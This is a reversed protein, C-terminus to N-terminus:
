NLGTFEFKYVCCINDDDLGVWVCSNKHDVCVSENNHINPVPYQALLHTLEADFVYLKHTESDSVWLWDNVPDYCLGGVEKIGSYINKLSVYREGDGEKYEVIKGDRRVMLKGDITYLWVNAGTQTGVFLIDDKYYSIGEMGSNGYNKADPVTIVKVSEWDDPKNYGPAKICFVSKPENAIYLDGTKPHITIGELDGDLKWWKTVKGDFSVQGFWGNDGVTWLASGDATLCLGSLEPVEPVEYKTCKGMVPMVPLEPAPGSYDKLASSINGLDLISGRILKPGSAAEYVKPYESGKRLYIRFGEDLNILNPFFLTAGGDNLDKRLFYSPNGKKYVFDQYYSSVEVAWTDYAVTQWNSGAFVCGDYDGDTKFSVAACIHQFSFTGESLWACMLPADTTSFYFCDETFMDEKDVASAPWAAYFGDPETTTEPVKDLTVTATKGDASIDSAELKVTISGPTYGGTVMIEDGPEWATKGASSLSAKGTMDPAIVFKYVGPKPNEKEPGAPEEPDDSGPEPNNPTCFCATMMVACLIPFLYRFRM